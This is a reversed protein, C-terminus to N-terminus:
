GSGNAAICQVKDVAIGLRELDNREGSVAVDVSEDFLSTPKSGLDDCDGIRLAIAWQFVGERVRTDIDGGPGL